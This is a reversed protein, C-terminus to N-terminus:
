SAVPGSPTLKGTEGPATPVWQIQHGFIATLHRDTLESDIGPIGPLGSSAMVFGERIPDMAVQLRNRGNKDSHYWLHDADMLFMNAKGKANLEQFVTKPDTEKELSDLLACFNCESDTVRSYDDVIGQRIAYPRFRGTDEPRDAFVGNHCFAKVLHAGADATDTSIFPHTNWDTVDHSFGAYRLHIMFKRTEITELIKTTEEFIAMAKEFDISGPFRKRIIRRDPSEYAVGWGHIPAKNSADSDGHYSSDKGRRIWALIRRREEALSKISPFVGMYQDCM